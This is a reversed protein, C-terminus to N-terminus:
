EGSLERRVAGDARGVQLLIESKTDLNIKLSDIMEILKEMEEM